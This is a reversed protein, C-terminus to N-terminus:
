LLLDSGVAASDFPKFQHFVHDHNRSAFRGLVIQLQEVPEHVRYVLVAYVTMGIDYGDAAAGHEVEYPIHRCYAVPAYLEDANRGGYQRLVIRPYPHLVTDVIVAFLIEEASERRGGGNKIVRM